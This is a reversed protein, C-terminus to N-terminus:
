NLRAIACATSISRARCSRHFNTPSVRSGRRSRPSTARCSTTPSSRRSRPSSASLPPSCASRCHGARCGRALHEEVGRDLPFLDHHGLGHRVPRRLPRGLRRDRPGLLNSELKEVERAISVDLVKEVRTQLGMFSSASSRCRVNGSTCPLSSCSAMGTAPRATLTAYLEELSTGSWFVQEFQDMAKHTRSFLMTKNIIIAWCWISACLLGLMVLKVVIHASLFMSWLTVEAAPSAAAAAAVDTPNM